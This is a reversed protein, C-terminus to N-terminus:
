KPVLTGAVGRLKACGIVGREWGTLAAFFRLIFLGPAQQKKM